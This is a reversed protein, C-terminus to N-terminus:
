KKYHVEVDTMLGGTDEDSLKIVLKSSTLTLITVTTQEGGGTQTLTLENGNKVWNGFDEFLECASSYEGYVFNGNSKFESYDRESSCEHEYPQEVRQGMFTYVTKEAYWKGVIDSSSGGNDDSSCSILSTGALAVGVFLLFLKKM